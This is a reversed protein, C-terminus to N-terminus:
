RTPLAAAVRPPAPQLPNGSNGSEASPIRQLTAANSRQPQAAAAPAKQINSTGSKHAGFLRKCISTVTGSDDPVRLVLRCPIGGAAAAAGSDGLPCHPSKAVPQTRQFRIILCGTAVQAAGCHLRWCSLSSLLRPTQPFRENRNGWRSQAAKATSLPMGGAEVYGSIFRGGRDRGSIGQSTCFIGANM